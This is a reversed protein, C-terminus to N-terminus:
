SRFIKIKVTGATGPVGGGRRRKTSAALRLFLVRAGAPLQFLSFINAEIARLLKVVPVEAPQQVDRGRVGDTRAETEVVDTGRLLDGLPTVDQFQHFAHQSLSVHLQHAVVALSAEHGSVICFYKGGLDLWRMVAARM